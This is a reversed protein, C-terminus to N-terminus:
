KATVEKVLEKAKTVIKTEVTAGWKTPQGYYIMSSDGEYGGEKLVRASPVYAMVDNAYATVWVAAQRGTGEELAALISSWRVAWRLWTVQDGLGV